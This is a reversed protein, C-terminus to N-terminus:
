HFRFCCYVFSFQFSFRSANYKYSFTVLTCACLLFLFLHLCCYFHNFFKSSLRMAPASKERPVICHSVSWDAANCRSGCNRQRWWISKTSPEFECLVFGLHRIAAMEFFFRSLAMDGCRNWRDVHFKGRQRLNARRVACATLIEFKLFDLIASLRWKSFDFFPWIDAITQGIPM